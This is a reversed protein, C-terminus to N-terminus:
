ATYHKFYKETFERKLEAKTYTQIIANGMLRVEFFRKGMTSGWINRNPPIVETWRWVFQFGDAEHLIKENESKEWFELQNKNQSCPQGACCYNPHLRWIFVVVSGGHKMHTNIKKKQEWLGDERKFCDELLCEHSIGFPWYNRDDVVHHYERKEGDWQTDTLREEADCLAKVKKLFQNVPNIKRKAM